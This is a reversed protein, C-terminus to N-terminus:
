HRYPRCVKAKIKQVRLHVTRDPLEVAGYREPFTCSLLEVAEETDHRQVVERHASFRASLISWVWTFPRAMWAFHRVNRVLPTVLYQATFLAAALTGIVILLPIIQGEQSFLTIMALLTLVPPYLAWLFFPRPRGQRDELYWISRRRERSQAWRAETYAWIDGTSYQDIAFAAKWNVGRYGLYVGCFFALVLRIAVIIAVFVPQLTFAYLLRRRFDCQDRLPGSTFTAWRALWRPPDKAFYEKPVDITIQDHGMVECPWYWSDTPHDDNDVVDLEYRGYRTRAFLRKKIDRSKRGPHAVLLFAHLTHEGPRYFAVYHKIDGLPVLIRQAETGARTVVLLVSYDEISGDAVRTREERNLCWQVPISGGTFDLDPILIQM